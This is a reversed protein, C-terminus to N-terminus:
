DQAFISQLSILLRFYLKEFIVSIYFDALFQQLFPFYSLTEQIRALRTSLQYSTNTFESVLACLLCSIVTQQEINPSSYFCPHM